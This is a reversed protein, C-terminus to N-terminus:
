YEWEQDSNLIHVGKKKQSKCITGKGPIICVTFLM